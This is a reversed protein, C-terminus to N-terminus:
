LPLRTSVVSLGPCDAPVHRALLDLGNHAATVLAELRACSTYDGVADAVRDAELDHPDCLSWDPYLTLQHAVGVESGASIRRELRLTVPV